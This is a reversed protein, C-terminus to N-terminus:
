EDSLVRPAILILLSQDKEYAVGIRFLSGLAPIEGLPMVRSGPKRMREGIWYSRNRDAIVTTRARGALAPGDVGPLPSVLIYDNLRYVDGVRMAGRFDSNVTEQAIISGLFPIRSIDIKDEDRTEVPQRLDLLYAGGLDESAASGLLLGEPLYYDGNELMVRVRGPRPDDPGGDRQRDNKNDQGAVAVAAAIVLAACLSLLAGLKRM